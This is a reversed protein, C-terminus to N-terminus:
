AIHLIVTRVVVVEGRARAVARDAVARDHRGRERKLETERGIHYKQLQSLFLSGARLSCRGLTNLYLNEAVDILQQQFGFKQALLCDIQKVEIAISLVFHKSM